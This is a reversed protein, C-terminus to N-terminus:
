RIWTLRVGEDMFCRSWSLRSVWSCALKGIQKPTTNM